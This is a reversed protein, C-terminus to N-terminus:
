RTFDLMDPTMWGFIYNLYFLGFSVAAVITTWGIVRLPRFNHPASEAQGPVLPEGAEHATRVHFPMVVFACMVWFLIFIALASTWQM